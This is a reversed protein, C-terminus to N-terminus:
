KKIKENQSNESNNKPNVARKSGCITLSNLEALDENIANLLKSREPGSVLRARDLQKDLKKLLVRSPAAQSWCNMAGQLQASAMVFFYLSALIALASFVGVVKEGIAEREHDPTLAFLGFLITSVLAIEFGNAFYDASVIASDSPGYPDTATASIFALLAVCAGGNAIM